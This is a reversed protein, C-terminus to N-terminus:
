VEDFIGTRNGSIYYIKFPKSKVGPMGPSGTPMGPLSIGEIAPKEKLLKDIAERPVHGVVYYEGIYSLHCSWLNRPINHKECIERLSQVNVIEVNYGEEELYEAYKECCGCAEPKYIVVQLPANGFNLYLAFALIVGLGVMLLSLIRM